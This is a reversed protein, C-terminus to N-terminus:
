NLKRTQCDDVIEGSVSQEILRGDGDVFRGSEIPQVVISQVILNNNTVDGGLAVGKPLIYGRDKCQTSLYYQIAPWYKESMLEFTKSEAFDGMKARAQRRAEQARPHHKIYTSLNAASMDLKAASPYLLGHCELLTQCVIEIQPRGKRYKIQPREPMRLKLKTSFGNPILLLASIV